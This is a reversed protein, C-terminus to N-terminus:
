SKVNYNYELQVQGKALRVLTRSWYARAWDCLDQKALLSSIAEARKIQDNENYVLM